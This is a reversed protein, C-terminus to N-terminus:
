GLTKAPHRAFRFNNQVSTLKPSTDHEQSREAGSRGSARKQITEPKGVM